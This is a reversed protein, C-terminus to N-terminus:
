SGTGQHMELRELDYVVRMRYRWCGTQPQSPLPSQQTNRFQISGLLSLRHGGPTQPLSQKVWCLVQSSCFALWDRPAPLLLGTWGASTPDHAPNGRGSCFCSPFGHTCLLGSSPTHLLLRSTGYCKRSSVAVLGQVPCQGSHICLQITWM